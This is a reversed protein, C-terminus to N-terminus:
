IHILSLDLLGIAEEVADRVEAAVSTPSIESRNEFADNIINELHTM